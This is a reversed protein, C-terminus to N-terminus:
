HVETMSSSKVWEMPLVMELSVSPTLAPARLETTSCKGLMDHAISETGLV